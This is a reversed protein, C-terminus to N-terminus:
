QQAHLRGKLPTQKGLSAAKSSLLIKMQSCDDVPTVKQILSHPSTDVEGKLELLGWGMEHLSPCARFMSNWDQSNTYADIDIRNIELVKSTNEM